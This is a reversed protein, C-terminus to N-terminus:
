GSIQRRIAQIFRDKEPFVTQFNNGLDVGILEHHPGTRNIIVADRLETGRSTTSVYTLNTSKATVIYLDLGIVDSIYQYLEPGLYRDSKLLRKIGELSYDIVAGLSDRAELGRRREQNMRYMSSKQYYTVEEDTEDPDPVELAVALDNRLKRVIEKRKTISSDNAYPGYFAKLIAHLISSGDNITSIRVVVSPRCWECPVIQYQDEGVVIPPLVEEERLRPVTTSIEGQTGGPIRLRPLTSTPLRTPTLEAPRPVVPTTVVPLALPEPRRMPTTTTTPTPQRIPLQSPTPQRIPPTTTTPTTTTPLTLAPLQTPTPQRIPPTTTTPLTLAPLQTSTTPLRSPTTIVPLPLPTPRSPQLTIPPLTPAPLTPAPLTPTSLTPAPLTPTPTSPPLLTTPIPTPSSSRTFIGYSYLQSFISEPASLFKEKDARFIESLTFNYPQLRLMLDGIFVLYEMQDEVISERIDIYLRNPPHYVLKALSLQLETIPVGMGFAPSFVQRITDGDITFFLLKGNPALNTTITSILGNLIVESEWFFTLSLMVSVVNVPRGIFQNVAQTITQTDEGRTQVLFVKNQMGLQIIRRQLEQFHLPNPEVAVIKSYRSWKSVDGGRGSGIDLLTDNSQAKHHLQRKIQNHYRRVLAFSEGRIINETIPNHIDEWVDVAIDLNNPFPKDLRLRHPVLLNENYDWGFEVVTGDPLNALLPHSANVQNVFPVHRSGTFLVSQGRNSAYLELRMAGRPLQPSPEVIKWGISLDITLQEKPKWKCLDPISTLTREHLPFRDSHPNYNTSEPTFLFGDQQYALNPQEAFFIRVLRFFEEPTTFEKFTKTNLFLLSSDYRDSVNQCHNMRLSHPKEQISPDGAFGPDGLIPISLCDYTVYWIRSDPAGARRRTVPIFDGDLISGNLDSVNDSSIKMVEDPAMVLWIGSPHFVLLKRIGDAKHTITYSTNSNGILGGWVMDRLKLNRAQVLIHNDIRDRVSQLFRPNKADLNRWGGLTTNVYSIITERQSHTYLEVSDYIHLLIQELISSLQPLIRPDLIEAEAEYRTVDRNDETSMSVETLDLRIADNFLLFSYRTKHRIVNSRFNRPPQISTERSVVLRFPYESPTDDWLRDKTTWLIRQSQSESTSEIISKRFRGGSYDTSNIITPPTISTYHDRLRSFTKWTLGNIFQRSNQTTNYIFRGFRVEVELTSNLPRTQSQESALINTVHTLSSESIM